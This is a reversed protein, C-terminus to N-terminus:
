IAIIQSAIQLLLKWSCHVMESKEKNVDPRQWYPAMELSSLCGQPPPFEVVKGGEMLVTSTHVQPTTLTAGTVGLTPVLAGCLLCVRSWKAQSSGTHSPNKM